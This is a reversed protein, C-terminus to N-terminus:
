IWKYNWGIRVKIWDKYEDELGFTIRNFGEKEVKSLEETEHNFFVSYMKFDLDKDQLYMIIEDMFAELKEDNKFNKILTNLTVNLRITKLETAFPVLYKEIRDPYCDRLNGGGNNYVDYYISSITILLNMYKNETMGYDPKLSELKDLEDQYKGNNGWYSNMM